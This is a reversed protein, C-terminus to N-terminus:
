LHFGLLVWATILAAVVSSAIPVVVVRLAGMYVRTNTKIVQIDAVIGGRGDRGWLALEIRDMEEIINAREKGAVQMDKECAEKEMYESHTHKRSSSM